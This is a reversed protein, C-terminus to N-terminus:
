SKWPGTTHPETRRTRSKWPWSPVLFPDRRTMRRTRKRTWCRCSTRRCRLTSLTPSCRLSSSFRLPCLPLHTLNRDSPSHPPPAQTALHLLLNNKRKKITCQNHGTLTTSSHSISVQKLTHCFVRPHEM